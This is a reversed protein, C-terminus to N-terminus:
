GGAVALWVACSSPGSPGVLGAACCTSALPLITVGGAVVDGVLASFVTVVSAPPPSVPVSPRVRVRVSVCAVPGVVGPGIASGGGLTVALLGAPAAPSCALIAASEGVKAVLGPAPAALSSAALFEASDACTSTLAVLM